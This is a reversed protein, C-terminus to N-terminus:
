SQLEILLQKSAAALVTKLATKEEETTRALLLQKTTEIAQGLDSSYAEKRIAGFQASLTKTPDDECGACSISQDTHLDMEKIQEETLLTLGSACDPCMWSEFEDAGSFDWYWTKM